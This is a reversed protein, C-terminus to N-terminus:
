RPRVGGGFRGGPFGVVVLEVPGLTVVGGKTITTIAANGYPTIQPRPDGRVPSCLPWRHPHLAVVAGPPSFPNSPPPIPIFPLPTSSDHISSSSACAPASFRSSANM